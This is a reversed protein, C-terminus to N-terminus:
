EIRKRRLTNIIMKGEIEPSLEVIEIQKKKLNLIMKEHSLQSVYINELTEINLQATNIQYFPTFLTLLWIKNHQSNALSIAAYLANRNTELDTIIVLHKSKSGHLVTKISEYIGTTQFRHKIRGNVSGGVLYPHLLTLFKQNEESEQISFNDINNSNSPSYTETKIISPLNSLENFIQKYSWSPSINTLIKFEDYAILGVQHHMSQLINTLHIGIIMAHEIKSCKGITRRMNRSCDLLIITELTEKKQFTKTLIKQLRSSAKWDIDRLLDGPLYERVGEMERSVESGILSPISLINYDTKSTRKAKKIENPDSHVIIKSYVKKSFKCTFLNCQNSIICNVTKFEHTGRSSFFIQYELAMNEFYSINRSITNSGNILIATKPLIDTVALHIPGGNQQIYIKINLPHNVFNLKEIIIRQIQIKGIDNQFSFKSYVLFILLSMGGLTPFLNTFLYSYIFLLISLFLLIKTNVTWQIENV